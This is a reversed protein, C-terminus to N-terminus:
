ASAVTPNPCFAIGITACASTRRSDRSGVFTRSRMSRECTSGSFTALDGPTEIPPVVFRTRLMEPHDVVVRRVHVRAVLVKPWADSAVLWLALLDRADRPPEPFQKRAFRVLSRVWAPRADLALAYAVRKCMSAEDWDGALMASAIGRALFTPKM